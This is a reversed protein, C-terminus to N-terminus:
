PSRIPRLRRGWGNRRASIVGALMELGPLSLIFMPFNGQFLSTVRLNPHM